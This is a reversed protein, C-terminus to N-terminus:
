GHSPLLFVQVVDATKPDFSDHDTDFIKGSKRLEELTPFIPDALVHNPAIVKFAPQLAGKSALFALASAILVPSTTKLERTLRRPDLFTEYPHSEVWGDLQRLADNLEPLKALKSFGFRSM